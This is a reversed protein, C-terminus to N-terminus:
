AAKTEASRGASGASGASTTRVGEATYALGARHQGREDTFEWFSARLGGVFEVPQGPVIEPAKEATVTVQITDKDGGGAKDKVWVSVDWKSVGERSMAVEGTQRNKLKPECDLGITQWRSTDIYNSIM